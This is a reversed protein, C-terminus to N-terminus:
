AGPREKREEGKEQGESWCGWQSDTGSEQSGKGVLCLKSISTQPSGPEAWRGLWSRSLTPAFIQPTVWVALM